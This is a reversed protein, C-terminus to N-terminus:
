MNWYLDSDGSQRLTVGFLYGNSYVIRTKIIPDLTLFRNQERVHRPVVERIQEYRTKFTDDNDFNDFLIKDFELQNDNTEFTIMSYKDKFQFASM